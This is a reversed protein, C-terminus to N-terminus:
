YGYNEGKNIIILSYLKDAQEHREHNEDRKGIGWDGIGLIM